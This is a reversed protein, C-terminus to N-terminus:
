AWSSPQTVGFASRIRGAWRYDIVLNAGETWGIKQLGQVLAAIRRQAEPDSENIPQLVGIRRVRDAQQAHAALPWVAAGGLLSLFERRKV